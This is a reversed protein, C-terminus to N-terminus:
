NKRVDTPREAVPAFMSMDALLQEGAITQALYMGTVASYLVGVSDHGTAVYLHSMRPVRGIKFKGDKSRPRLGAWARLLRVRALSPVIETAYDAVTGLAEPTV